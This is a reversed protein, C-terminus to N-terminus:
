LSELLEGVVKNVLSGDAKGRLQPMLKGMVKGRDSAGTAGVETVAAKALPLIQEEGLQEPLYRLLVDLEATEKDVLDTRGADGFTTISDRYQKAMRALVESSGAEDLEGGKEIEANKVAASILRVTDRTVDDHAKMATKLDESLQDRLSM